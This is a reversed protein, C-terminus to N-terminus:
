EGDLLANELRTVLSSDCGYFDLYGRFSGYKQKIDSLVLAMSEKPAEWFYSPLSELLEASHPNKKMSEIFGPMYLMTLNYDNVIDEDAVGLINLVAASLIGTRDKGVACHFLVPHNEPDAIFELANALSKGFEKDSMLNLYFEGVCSYRTSLDGEDESSSGTGTGGTILPVNHYRVGGATLLGVSEEKIEGSSRLDLVSELGTEQRLFAVDGGTKHRLEGSRFLRRWAVTRGTQTRYGGLDRLNGVFDINIQRSFNQSM